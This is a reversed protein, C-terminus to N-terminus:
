RIFEENDDTHYSGILPEAEADYGAKHDFEAEVTKSIAANLLMLPIGQPCASECAGCAVCRGAQHFARIVQWAYNGHQRAATSVWQPTNREVICRECYCAPCAARCAYCRTCKDFQERWFEAREDATKGELEALAQKVTEDFDAGRFQANLLEQAAALDMAGLYNEGDVALAIVADREIQSEAALVLLSRMTAPPAVMAVPLQKRIEPKKLYAALNVTCADDYTLQEARAADATVLPLRADGAARYGLVLKVKGERLLAAADEILTSM